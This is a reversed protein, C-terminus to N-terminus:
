APLEGDGSERGGQENRIKKSRNAAHVYDNRFGSQEGEQPLNL